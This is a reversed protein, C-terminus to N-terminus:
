LHTAVVLCAERGSPVTTKLFFGCGFLFFFLLVVLCGGVFVCGM